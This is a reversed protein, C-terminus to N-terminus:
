TFQPSTEKAGIYLINIAVYLLAHRAKEGELGKDEIMDMIGHDEMICFGPLM